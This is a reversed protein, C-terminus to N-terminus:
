KLLEPLSHYDLGNFTGSTMLLLNKNRWNQQKLFEIMEDRDDFVNLNAEGFSKKIDDKSIPDLQKKELTSPSYFVIPVNAYKMTGKYQDIFDKNLSSFTHLELCAVLDRAPYQEKVALTTAKVKSPAHAYDKYIAMGNNEGILELRKDAGSFSQIAMYFMDDTIGIRKLVAMAGSINQLNHKGFLKVPITENGHTLYTVGDEISHPHTKYPIENVDERGKQGIVTGLSDDDSYILSGAKPTADAFLDFQKVYEEETPFVNIHDWWVGSILGIHHHYKLFKPTRDIPSSLYEDGEIIIIPADSLQVMEEFGAIRAGVAYDFKKNHYKLVHMIISTITTKGHSGAIVIRQKDISQEYIYDPFSYIKVGLEQAKKLEPNDERAHMGLIVADLGEHIKSEDWGVKEPLLGNKQLLSRSPEFIEDDSGTINFGKKKLAIALNHMISGGIAIFHINQSEQSM